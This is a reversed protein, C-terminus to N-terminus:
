SRLFTGKGPCNKESIFGNSFDGQFVPPHTRIVNNGSQSAPLFFVIENQDSLKQPSRHPPPPPLLPQGWVGGSSVIRRSSVSGKVIKSSLFCLM